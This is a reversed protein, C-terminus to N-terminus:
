GGALTGCFFDARSWNPAAEVFVVVEQLELWKLWKALVRAL